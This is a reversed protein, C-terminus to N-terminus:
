SIHGITKGITLWYSWYQALVVGPFGGWPTFTTAGLHNDKPKGDGRRRHSGPERRKPALYLRTLGGWPGGIGLPSKNTRSTFKSIIQTQNAHLNIM